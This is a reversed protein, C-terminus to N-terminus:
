ELRKRREHRARTPLSPASSGLRRDRLAAPDEAEYRAVWRRFTRESMKLLRAAQRQVLRKRRWLEYVREFAEMRVERLMATRNM